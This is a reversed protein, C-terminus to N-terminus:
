ETNTKMDDTRQDQGVQEFKKDLANVAAYEKEYEQMRDGMGSVYDFHLDGYVMTLIFSVVTMAFCILFMGFFGIYDFFYAMLFAGLFSSVGFASFMFSYVL